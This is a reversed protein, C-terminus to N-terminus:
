SAKRPYVQEAHGLPVTRYVGYKLIVVELVIDGRINTVVDMVRAREGAPIQEHVGFGYVPATIRVIDGCYIDISERPPLDKFVIPM